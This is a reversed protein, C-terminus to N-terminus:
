ASLPFPPKLLEGQLTEDGRASAGWEERRDLYASASPLILIPHFPRHAAVRREIREDVDAGGVNQKNTEKGFALGCSLDVILQLQEIAVEVGDKGCRKLFLHLGNPRYVVQDMLATCRAVGSRLIGHLDEVGTFIDAIEDVEQFIIKVVQRM